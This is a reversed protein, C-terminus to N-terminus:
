APKAVAVRLKNQLVEIVFLKGAIKHNADVHCIEIGPPRRHRAQLKVGFIRAETNVGWGTKGPAAFNVEDIECSDTPM